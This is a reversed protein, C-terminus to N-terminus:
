ELVPTLSEEIVEIVETSEAPLIEVSTAEETIAEEPITEESVVETSTAQTSTAEVNPNDPVAISPTLTEVSGCEGLIKNWDNNKLTICYLEGTLSDTMEIGTSVRATGVEIRTFIGLAATIKSMVWENTSAVINHITNTVIDLSIGTSSTNELATVRDALTTLAMNQAGIQSQLTTVETTIRASLADITPSEIIKASILGATLKPTIIEVAALMRDVTLDASATSNTEAGNQLAVLIAEPTSIGAVTLGPFNDLSLGSHYSNKVFVMIKGVGTSSYDELAQGITNGAKTAKAGVGPVSSLTLYDGTHIPGNETSVKTPVRGALAIPVDGSIGERGPGSGLIIGPNTSVVGMMKDRDILTAKAVNIGRLISVVDGPEMYESAQYMEAIDSGGLSSSVSSIRGTTSATCWGDNDVCLGGKLINLGSPTKGDGILVFQGTPIGLGTGATLGTTTAGFFQITSTGASNNFSMLPYATAATNTAIVWARDNVQLTTTARNLFRINGSKFNVVDTSAAGFSATTAYFDTTSANTTTANTGTFAQFTSSATTLLNGTYFNTTTGSTGIFAQFTSSGLALFNTAYLNTGTASTARLAQFTSSGIALFNTTYLNTSTASTTTGQAATFTTMTSSATSIFGNLFELTTSTAQENTSLKTFPFAFGGGGCGTCSTVVLNTTTANSATFNQLTTSALFTQEGTWSNNATTDAGGSTTINTVAQNVVQSVNRSNSDSQRTILQRLSTIQNELGLVRALISSNPTAAPTLTNARTPLTIVREITPVVQEIQQEVNNPTDSLPTTPAEPPLNILNGIKISLNLFWDSVAFSAGLFANSFSDAGTGITELFESSGPTSPNDNIEQAPLSPLESALNEVANGQFTFLEKGVQSLSSFDFGVADLSHPLFVFFALIITFVFRSKYFTM